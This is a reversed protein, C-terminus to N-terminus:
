NLGRRSYKDVVYQIQHSSSVYAEKCKSVVVSCASVIKTYTLNNKLPGKETYGHYNAVASFDRNRFIDLTWNIIDFYAPLSKLLSKSIFIHPCITNM